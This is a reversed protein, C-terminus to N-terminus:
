KFVNNIFCKAMMVANDVNDAQEMSNILASGIIFGDTHEFLKALQAKKSLGFGIAIPLSSVTRIKNLFDLTSNDIYDSKQAGTVGTVSVCYIFGSSNSAIAKLREVPSTPAALLILDVGKKDFDPKVFDIEDFPLDPIIVGDVGSEVAYDLFNEVGFSLIPNIYSMLVIGVESSERIKKVFSFIMKLDTNHQLSKFSSHQITPGDALPDSFPVGIELIHVNNESLMKALPVTINKFPYEPTIYAINVKEGTTKQRKFISPIRSM